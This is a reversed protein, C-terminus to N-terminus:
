TTKHYLTPSVVYIFSKAESLNAVSLFLRHFTDALNKPSSKVYTMKDHCLIMHSALLRFNNSTNVLEARNAADRYETSVIYM